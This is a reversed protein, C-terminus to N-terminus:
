RGTLQRAVIDEVSGLAEDLRGPDRGGGEARDPRGGGGGGMVAALEKVLRGAHGGREVIDKTVVALVSPKGDLSSGLVIVGSRLRDRLRDALESVAERSDVGARAVLVQAGDVQRVQSLMDDLHSGALQARLQALQREQDRLREQLVTVQRELELPSVRLAASARELTRLRELVYRTAGRGTVAEVRRIGSGISGESTIYIPGIEGTHHVHTGGCLESGYGHISVVRVVDGYKEGFLAMAGGAVAEAYQKLETYVQRDDQTRDNLIGELEFLEETPIAGPQSFDFRLRDPAVLSGAQQAHPGLTDRLAKHLIHTATHNRAIDVRRQRDVSLDVQQGVRLRGHLVRGRHLTYGPVPRQTDLVQFDGEPGTIVGTDGVQGGSESYFPTREVLLEAERGPEVIDVHRDDAIISLLRSSDELTTYGTFETAPGRLESYAQPLRATFRSSVRSQEQQRSLAVAFGERDVSLNRESALEVTLDLPFGYTDYLTFADEGSVETQGAASLQDIIADLRAVGRALTRAFYEEERQVNTRIVEWRDELETYHDGMNQVVVETTAVLFTSELGLKRGHRIARRLIRRLVYGRGENSPLVGDALLFAITRSHDAIVRYAIMQESRQEDSQGALEQVKDMIPALLDTEYASDVGQVIATVRELGMGTDINKRPLPTREGQADQSYEMFVLNWFEWWRGCDHTLNCDARGCGKEPGRDYFLESDPGCPGVDAMQWFNDEDGLLTIREAPLGAVEQWLEFAVDDTYHITPWIRSPDMGLEQTVFEWALEIAERKFYDGFSFNGLMEFFTLHRASPGVNELDNHKGGARVCKQATTARSYPRDEAGTFVDKFQFMGSNAFLLTPDKAPILSSSPVVTHGRQEFFSLFRRRIENSNM